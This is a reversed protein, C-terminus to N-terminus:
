KRQNQLAPYEKKARKGVVREEEGGEPFVAKSDERSPTVVLEYVRLLGQAQSQPYLALLIHLICISATRIRGPVNPNSPLPM